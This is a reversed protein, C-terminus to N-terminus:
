LKTADIDAKKADLGIAVPFSTYHFRSNAKNEHIAISVNMLKGVEFTVDGQEAAALSRTFTVQYEGNAYTGTASLNNTDAIRDQLIYEDTLKVEPGHFAAVWQDIVRGKSLYANLLKDPIQKGKKFAFEAYLKKGQDNPMDKMDDHCTVYCGSKTFTKLSANAFQLSLRDALDQEAVAADNFSVGASPWSVRFYVNDADYAAQLQIDMYGAGERPKTEFPKGSDSMTLEGSIIEDAAIDFEGKKSVHCKACSKKNKTVPKAGTGHDKDQLMEWSTVGPYFITVTHKEVASWDPEALLTTASLGICGGLSLVLLRKIYKNKTHTM